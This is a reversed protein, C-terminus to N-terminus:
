NQSLIQYTCPHVAFWSKKKIKLVLERLIILWMRFLSSRFLCSAAGSLYAKSSSIGNTRSISLPRDNLCVLTRSQLRGFACLPNSRCPTLQRILVNFSLVNSLNLSTM